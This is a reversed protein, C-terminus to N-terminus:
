SLLELRDFLSTEEELWTCIATLEHNIDPERFETWHLNNKWLRYTWHELKELNDVQLFILTQNNWKNADPSKLCFEAVVHAGQVAPLSCPIDKRVIVYLRNKLM